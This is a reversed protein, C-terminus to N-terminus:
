FTYMEVGGPGSTTIKLYFNVVGGSISGQIQQVLPLCAVMQALAINNIENKINEKLQDITRPNNAYVKNEFSEMLLFRLINLGGNASVVRKQQCAIHTM